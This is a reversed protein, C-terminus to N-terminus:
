AQWFPKRAEFQMQSPTLGLDRITREDLGAIDRRSRARGIWERVLAKFRTADLLPVVTALHHRHANTM